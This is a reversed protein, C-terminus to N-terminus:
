VAYGRERLLALIASRARHVRVKANVVSISLIEAIEEYSRNEQHRLLFPERYIEDLRNLGESFSESMEEEELRHEPSPITSPPDFGGEALHQLSQEAKSAKGARSRVHDHFLNMAIRYLWTSFRSEGRFSGLGQYAKVFVDQALDEAVTPNRVLRLLLGFIADQHSRV